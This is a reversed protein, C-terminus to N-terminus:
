FIIIYVRITKKNAYLNLNHDPQQNRIFPHRTWIRKKWFTLFNQQGFVIDLVPIKQVIKEVQRFIGTKSLKPCQNQVAVNKLM